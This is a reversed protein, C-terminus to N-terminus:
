ITVWGWRNGRRISRVVDTSVNHMEAVLKVIAGEELLDLKIARARDENLGAWSLNGARVRDIANERATGWRLHSPEICHRRGACVLAHCAHHKESPPPGHFYETIYRLAGKGRRQFWIDPYGGKRLREPWLLCGTESDRECKELAWEVTRATDFGRPKREPKGHTLPELAKGQRALAEHGACLGQEGGPEGCGQVSCANQRWRLHTPEICRVDGSCEKTREIRRDGAASPLHVRAVLRECRTAQSRVQMTPHGPGCRADESRPSRRCGTKLDLTTEAILKRVLDGHNEWTMQWRIHKPEICRPHGSCTETREVVADTERWGYTVSAILRECTISGKQLKIKPKALGERKKARTRPNLLCGTKPDRTSERLLIQAKEKASRGKGGWEIHNPEMCQPDGACQPTREVRTLAERPGLFATAIMRECNVNRKGVQIKPKSGVRRSTREPKELVLCGSHPDKVCRDLIKRAYRMAPAEEEAEATSNWPRTDEWQLHAPEICLGKSDTCLPTRQVRTRPPRKGYEAECIIRECAVKEGRINVYPKGTKHGKRKARTRETLLCGSVPERTATRLVKDAWHRTEDISRNGQTQKNKTM